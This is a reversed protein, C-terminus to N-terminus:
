WKKLFGKDYLMGLSLGFILGIGLNNIVAGFILGLCLGTALGNQYSGDKNHYFNSM